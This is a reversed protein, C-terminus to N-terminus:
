YRGAGGQQNCCTCPVVTMSATAALREASTTTASPAKARSGPTTQATIVASQRGTKSQSRAPATTAAACAPKSGRVGAPAAQLCPDQLPCHGDHTNGASAQDGIQPRGDARQSKFNAVLHPRREKIRIPLRCCREPGHRYRFRTENPAIPSHFIWRAGSRRHASPQGTPLHSASIWRSARWRRHRRPTSAM